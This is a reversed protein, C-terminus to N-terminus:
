HRDARRQSGRSLWLAILEHMGALAAALLAPLSVRAVPPRALNVM